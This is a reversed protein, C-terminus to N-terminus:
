VTNVLAYLLFEVDGQDFFLTVDEFVPTALLVTSTSVNKLQFWIQYKIDQANTVSYPKGDLCTIQSFGDDMFGDQIGLTDTPVPDVIPFKQGDAWVFLRVSPVWKGSITGDETQYLPLPSSPNAHNYMVPAM